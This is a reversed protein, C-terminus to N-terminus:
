GNDQSRERDMENLEEDTIGEATEDSADLSDIFEYFTGLYENM